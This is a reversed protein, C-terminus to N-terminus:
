VVISSSVHTRAPDLPFATAGAHGDSSTSPLIMTVSRSGDPALLYPPRTPRRVEEIQDDAAEEVADYQVPYWLPVVQEDARAVRGVRDLIKLEVCLLIPEEM